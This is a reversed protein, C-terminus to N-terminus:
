HYRRWIEFLSPWLNPSKRVSALADYLYSRPHCFSLRKVRLNRLFNKASSSLEPDSLGQNLYSQFQEEWITLLSDFSGPKHGDPCLKFELSVEFLKVVQQSVGLKTLAAPQEERGPLAVGRALFAARGMALAAKFYNRRVFDQDPAPELGRRVRDAWLLGVGRNLLLRVAEGRPPPEKLQAPANSTLFDPSGSLVRHGLLLDHWMLSHPLSWVAEPTLPRSFDVDIGLRYEFERSISELHVGRRANRVVLFLDLDNYPMERGKVLSVAGEGRGYGGGLVLCVLNSGLTEEVRETLLGLEEEMRLHFEQSGLPAMKM